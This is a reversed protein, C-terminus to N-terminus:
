LWRRVKSRYDSYDKGFMASLVREEPGIQLRNMYLVFAAPGVLAWVSSLFVSWAVLVLLLGLYMPNRTVRYVGSRVVSSAAEPKMPNVTTRARRFALIGAVAFGVGILGLVSAAAVRVVSPLEVLPAIRSVGWMAGAIALAVVPPPVKLELAQM